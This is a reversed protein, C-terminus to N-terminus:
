APTVDAYVRRSGPLPRATGDGRCRPGTCRCRRRHGADLDDDGRVRVRQPQRLGTRRLLGLRLPDRPSRGTAVWRCGTSSRRHPTHRCRGSWSARRRGQRGLAPRGRGQRASMARSRASGVRDPSRSPSRTRPSATTRASSTTTSSTTTRSPTSSTRSTTGSSMRRPARPPRTRRASMSSRPRASRRSRPSGGPAGSPSTASVDSLAYYRYDGSPEAETDVPQPDRVGTVAGTSSGSPTSQVGRSSSSPSPDRAPDHRGPVPLRDDRDGLRRRGRRPRLRRHVHPDARGGGGCPRAVTHRGPPWPSSSPPM